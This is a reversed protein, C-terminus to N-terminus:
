TNGKMIAKASCPKLVVESKCRLFMFLIEGVSGAVPLKKRICPLVSMFGGGLRSKKILLFHGASFQRQFRVPWFPRRLLELKACTDKFTLLSDAFDCRKGIDGM